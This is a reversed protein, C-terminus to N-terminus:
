RITMNSPVKNKKGEGERHEHKICGDWGKMGVRDLVKSIFKNV